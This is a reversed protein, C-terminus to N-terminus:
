YSKIIINNVFVLNVKIVYWCGVFIFFREFEKELSM